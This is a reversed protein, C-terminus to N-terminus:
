MCINYIVTEGTEFGIQSLSDGLAVLVASTLAKTSIPHTELRKMYWAMIGGGEGKNSSSSSSLLRRSVIRSSADCANVCRSGIKMSSVRSGVRNFM